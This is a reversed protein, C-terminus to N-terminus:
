KRTQSTSTNVVVKGAKSSITFHPNPENCSLNGSWLVQNPSRSDFLDVRKVAPGPLFERLTEGPLLNKPKGHRTTGEVVLCEQVVITIGSDNKISIWYGSGATAFPQAIVCVALCIAFRSRTAPFM